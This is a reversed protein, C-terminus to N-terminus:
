ILRKFYQFNVYQSDEPLLVWKTHNIEQWNEAHYELVKSSSFCQLCYQSFQKKGHHKTKSPM